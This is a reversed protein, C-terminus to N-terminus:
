FGRPARVGAVEGGHGLGWPIVDVEFRMGKLDLFRGITGRIKVRRPRVEDVRSDLVVFPFGVRLMGDEHVDELVHMEARLCVSGQALDNPGQNM